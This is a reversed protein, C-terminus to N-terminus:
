SAVTGGPPANGQSVEWMRGEPMAASLHGLEAMVYVDGLRKAIEDADQTRGENRYEAALDRAEKFTVKPWDNRDVGCPAAGDGAGQGRLASLRFAYVRRTADDQDTRLWLLPHGRFTGIFERSHEAQAAHPRYDPLAEIRARLEYPGVLVILGDWDTQTQGLWDSAAVMGNVPDVSGAQAVAVAKCWQSVVEQHLATAVYVGSDHGFRAIDPDPRDGFYLSRPGHIAWCRLMKSGDAPETLLTPIHHLLVASEWFGVRLSMEFKRTKDQSLPTAMYKQREIESHAAACDDLWQHIAAKDQDLMSLHWGDAKAFIADLRKKAEGLDHPCPVVAPAPQGMRWSRALLFALAANLERGPQGISRTPGVSFGSVPNPMNWAGWSARERSYLPHDWTPEPLGLFTEMLDRPGSQGFPEHLAMAAGWAGEVGDIARAVFHGLLIWYDYTFRQAAGSAGVDTLRKQAATYLEAVGKSVAEVVDNDKREAAEILLGMMGRHLSEVLQAAKAPETQAFVHELDPLWFYHFAARGRLRFFEDSVERPLNKDSRASQLLCFYGLITESAAAVNQADAGKVYAHLEKALVQGYEDAFRAAIPGPKSASPNYAGRGVVHAMVQVHVNWLLQLQLRDVGPVFRTYCRPVQALSQVLARFSALDADAMLIGMDAYVITLEEELSAGQIAKGALRAALYRSAHVRGKLGTCELTNLLIYALGLVSAMTLGLVVSPGAAIARLSPVADLSCRLCVLSVIGLLLSAVAVVCFVKLRCAELFYEAVLRGRQRVTHVALPITISVLPTLVTLLSILIAPWDVRLDPWTGLM